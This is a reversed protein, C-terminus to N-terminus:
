NRGKEGAGPLSGGVFDQSPAPYRTDARPFHSCPRVRVRAGQMVTLDAETALLHFRDLGREVLPHISVGLTTGGYLPVNNRRLFATGVDAGVGVLASSASVSVLRDRLFWCQTM